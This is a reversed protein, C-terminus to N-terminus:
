LSLAPIGISAAVESQVRLLNVIANDLGTITASGGVNAARVAAAFLLVPSVFPNIAAKVANIEAQFTARLAPTLDTVTVTITAGLNELIDIVLRIVVTLTVIQQNTLGIAQAAVGGAAGTTVGVITTTSTALGQAIAQYNAKLLAQAEVIIQADVNDKILQVNDNIQNLTVLSADSLTDVSSKITGTVTQQRRFPSATAFSALTLLSLFKM